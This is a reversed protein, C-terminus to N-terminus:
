EIARCTGARAISLSLVLPLYKTFRAIPFLMNNITSAVTGESLNTLEYETPSEDLERRRQWTAVEIYRKELRVKGNTARFDPCVVNTTAPTRSSIRVENAEVRSLPV